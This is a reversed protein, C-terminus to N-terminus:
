LHRGSECNIPIDEKKIQFCFIGDEVRATVRHGLMQIGGRLESNLGTDVFCMLMRATGSYIVGDDYM